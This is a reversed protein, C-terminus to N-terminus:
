GEEGALAMLTMEGWGLWFDKSCLVSIVKSRLRAFMVPGTTQPKYQGTPTALHGHGGFNQFIEDNQPKPPPIGFL